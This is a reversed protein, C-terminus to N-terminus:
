NSMIIEHKGENRGDREKKRKKKREKELLAIVFLKPLFLIINPILINNGFAGL